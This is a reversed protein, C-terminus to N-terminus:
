MCDRALMTPDLCGGIGCTGVPESTVCRVAKGVGRRRLPSLMVEGASPGDGSDNSRFAKGLQTGMWRWLTVSAPPQLCSQGDRNFCDM